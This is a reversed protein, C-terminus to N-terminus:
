KGTAAQPTAYRDSDVQVLEGRAVLKKLRDALEQRDDGHLGLERVLQKFGASHKPQRDIKKLIASDAIKPM